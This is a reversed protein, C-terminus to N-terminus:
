NFLSLEGISFYLMFTDTLEEDIGFPLTCSWDSYRSWEIGLGLGFTNYGILGQVLVLDFPM